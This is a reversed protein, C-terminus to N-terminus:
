KKVEREALYIRGMKDATMLFVQHPSSLGKQSLQKNLWNMDLGLHM